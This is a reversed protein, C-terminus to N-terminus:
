ASSTPLTNGSGNDWMSHVYLSRWGVVAYFRIAFKDPKLPMFSKARTRAKTRVGIEDVSSVGFPVAFSAFKRQFHELLPRSHRLPDRTARAEVTPGATTEGQFPAADATTASARASPRETSGVVAAGPTTGGQLPAADTAAASSRASPLGVGLATPSEESGSVEETDPDSDSIDETNDDRDSDYPPHIKLSGRISQFRNRGMTAKFDPHGQVTKNSWLEKMDTIPILSMAMELGIYADMESATVATEGKAV